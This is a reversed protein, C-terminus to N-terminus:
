LVMSAVFRAGDPVDLEVIWSDPDQRRRRDLYDAFEKPSDPNERKAAFFPRSGDAQPMREWLTAGDNRDLTVLLITGADREGRALVTAFGGDAEVARILGGVVIHAPLRADM